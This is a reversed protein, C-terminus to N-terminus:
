PQQPAGGEALRKKLAELRKQASDPSVSQTQDGLTRRLYEETVTGTEEWVRQADVDVASVANVDAVLLKRILESM